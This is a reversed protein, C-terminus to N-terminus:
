GINTSCRIIGPLTNCRPLCMFWRLGQGLLVSVVYLHNCHLVDFITFSTLILQLPFCHLLFYAELASPLAKPTKRSSLLFLSLLDSHESQVLFPIKRCGERVWRSGCVSFSFFKIATLLQSSQETSLQPLQTGSLVKRITGTSILIMQSLLIQTKQDGHRQTDWEIVCNRPAGLTSDLAEQACPSNGLSQHLHRVSSPLDNPRASPLEPVCSGVLICKRGDAAM